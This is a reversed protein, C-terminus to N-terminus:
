GMEAFDLVDGASMYAYVAGAGEGKGEGEGKGGWVM